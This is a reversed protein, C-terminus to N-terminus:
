RGPLGVSKRVILHPPFILHMQREELAGDLQRLLLDVASSGMAQTPQAITTIPPDFVDAWFSDSFGVLSLDKPCSLGTDRLARLVGASMVLNMSFIATPPNPASLIRRTGRYAADLDAKGEVVLAPDFPIGYVALAEKYGELRQETTPSNPLGAVVTIRRHSAELLHMVADRAGRRNDVVVSPARITPFRRNLLVLPIGSNTRWGELEDPDQVVPTIIVGDVRKQELVTLYHRQKEVLEDTNCIIVSYEKPLVADEIARVVATFFPNIVDSVVVGITRTARRRLSRAVQNPRFRLEAIARLVAERTADEM